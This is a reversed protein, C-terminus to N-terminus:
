DSKTLWFFIVPLPGVSRRLSGSRRSQFLIIFICRNKKWKEWCKKWDEHKRDNWDTEQYTRREPTSNEKKIEEEAKEKEEVMQM